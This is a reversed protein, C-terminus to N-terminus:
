HNIYIFQVNMGVGAIAFAACLAIAKKRSKIKM